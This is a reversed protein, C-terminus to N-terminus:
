QSEGEVPVINRLIVETVRERVQAAEETSMYANMVLFAISDAAKQLYAGQMGSKFKMGQEALQESISSKSMGYLITVESNM